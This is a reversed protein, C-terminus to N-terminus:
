RDKSTKNTKSLPVYFLPSKRMQKIKDIIDSRGGHNNHNKGEPKKIKDPRAKIYGHSIMKKIDARTISNKIDELKTQDMWVKNEGVKLIDAALKRQLTLGGM